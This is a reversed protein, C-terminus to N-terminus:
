PRPNHPPNGSKGARCLLDPSTMGASGPEAYSIRSTMGASRCARIILAALDAEQRPTIQKFDFTDPNLNAQKLAKVIRSAASPDVPLGAGGSMMFDDMPIIRTALVANRPATNSFGVDVLFGTEDRLVDRVSVGVGREVGVVQFLSYYARTMTQLAVMEESAVPPPSTELYKAVLNHRDPGPQYLCYDM